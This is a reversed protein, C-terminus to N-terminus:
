RIIKKHKGTVTIMHVAKCIFQPFLSSIKLKFVRACVYATLSSFRFHSEFFVKSIKIVSRKKPLAGSFIDRAQRPWRGGACRTAQIKGGSAAFSLPAFHGLRQPHFRICLVRNPFGLCFFQRRIRKPPFDGFIKFLM